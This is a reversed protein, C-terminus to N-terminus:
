VGVNNFNCIVMNIVCSLIISWRMSWNISFIIKLSGLVNWLYAFSYFAQIIKWKSDPWVFKCLVLTFTIPVFAVHHTSSLLCKKKNILHEINHVYSLLPCRANHWFIICQIDFHSGQIIFLRYKKPLIFIKIHIQREVQSNLSWPLQLAHQLPAM